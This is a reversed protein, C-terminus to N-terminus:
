YSSVSDSSRVVLKGDNFTFNYRSGGKGVRWTQDDDQILDIGDSQVETNSTLTANADAPVTLTVTGDTAKASLRTFNGELYVDGCATQSAFEGKFGIVRVQAQDALLNLNGDVDRINISEDDGKLEIDGSVGDLRLEGDTIIKLNSKRPVFVEIRVREPNNMAPGWSSNDNNVVKLTVFSSNHDETVLAPTGRRTAMETVVYQVEPKDWGRVSVSCGKAEVTVKPTGKVAFSNRKKEVSPMGPFWVATRMRDMAAKQENMSERVQEEIKKGDVDIKMKELKKLEDIKIKEVSSGASELARQAERMGQATARQSDRVAHALDRNVKASKMAEEHEDMDGDIDIDEDAKKNQLLNTAPNPTRGDNKRLISLRGNVSNLKIQTEGSGIRGYLDRGVYQGKRVPLGFDNTINGNLSDAKITANVDSPLTLSVSGNVTSLNIKSVGDVRDFDSIVEGNVTSLNAAGRLNTATVNGNVASIKTVNTFNSVAVSGNVTEIENLIATRPVWLRFEVELKRREGRARDNSRWGRYDAEVSFSDATTTVKIEVDALTEKSDAIKTAELKVEDRDWAEMTISGNVNSVSVNGNKSLPYSQEFKEIEDSAALHSEVVPAEAHRPAILGSDGNSAFLLGTFVLSYLWSM